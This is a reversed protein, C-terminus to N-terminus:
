PTVVDFRDLPRIGAEVLTWGPELTRGAHVVRVVPRTEVRISASKQLRAALEAVTADERALILLGITDGELFGYLPMM